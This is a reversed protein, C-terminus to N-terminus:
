RFLLPTFIFPKVTYHGKLVTKSCLPLVNYFYAKISDGMLCYIFMEDNQVYQLEDM